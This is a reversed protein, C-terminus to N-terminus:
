DPEYQCIVVSANKSQGVAQEASDQRKIQVAIEFPVGDLLGAEPAVMGSARFTQYASASAAYEFYPADGHAEDKMLVKWDVAGKNRGVVRGRVYKTTGSSKMRWVAQYFLEVIKGPLPASVTALAVTKWDDGDTTVEDGWQIGTSTGPGSAFPHRCAVPYEKGLWGM